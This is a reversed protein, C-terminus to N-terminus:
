KRHYFLVGYRMFNKGTIIGGYEISFFSELWGEM